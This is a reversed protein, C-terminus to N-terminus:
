LEGEATASAGGVQLEQRKWPRGDRLARKGLTSGEVGCSEELGQPRPQSVSLVSPLPCLYQTPALSTTGHQGLPGARVGEATLVAM